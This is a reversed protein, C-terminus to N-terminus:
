RILIVNGKRYIRDGDEFEVEAYWAFVATNLPKERYTGDWGKNINYTEFVKEGWRNYIFLKINKIGSGRVLLVDNEGDGNPTFSNPIFFTNEVLVGVSKLSGAEIFVGSDLIRDSADAIALKIHYTNFPIVAAKAELVITFGDYQVTAGPPNENDIYFQRNSVCNFFLLSDDVNNITNISVPLTTDPVIAINQTDTIAPGSIFLAFIDNIFCVYEPYEESAFVYNFRVTDFSPVIDFEIVCADFTGLLGFFPDLEVLLSDLDPDGPTNNVATADEIDNPGTALFINGSTLIIGSDIGINSNTGNFSGKAFDACNVIINSISIGTGALSQVLKTDSSSLSVILQAYSLTSIQMSCTFILFYLNFLIFESKVKAKRSKLQYAFTSITLISWLNLQNLLNILNKLNNM